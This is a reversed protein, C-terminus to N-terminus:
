REDEILLPTNGDTVILKSNPSNALSRFAKITEWQVLLPTLEEALIRQAQRIGEAEIRQREAEKQQQQLTFEMRQAMQDAELKQEIARALREPLEISKLLVAEIVFGRPGLQAAMLEQMEHEIHSRADTYMDKAPFRAAIDAAASRFVSMVVVQEYDQGITGLINPAESPLIRYLISVEAQVNLGDKSPLDLQVELNVTRVPVKYIRTLVPDYTVLGPQVPVPAIKGARSRVGVEGQRIVTCGGVLVALALFGLSM